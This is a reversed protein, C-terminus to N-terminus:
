FLWELFYFFTLLILEIKSAAVAIKELLNDRTNKLM